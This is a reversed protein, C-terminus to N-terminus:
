GRLLEAFTWGKRPLRGEAYGSAQFHAQASPVRNEILAVAVDPYERAYFPGDVEVLCPLRNEFFGFRLFHQHLDGILGEREAKAIDEYASRYFDPDFKIRSLLPTLLEIFFGRDLTVTQENMSLIKKNKVYDWYPALLRDYAADSSLGLGTMRDNM